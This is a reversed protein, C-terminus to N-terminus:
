LADSHHASRTSSKLRELIAKWLVTCLDAILGHVCPASGPHMGRQMPFWWGGGLLLSDAQM